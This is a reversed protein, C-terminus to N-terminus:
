TDRFRRHYQQAKRVTGRGHTDRMTAGAIILHNRVTGATYGFKDGVRELSAAQEYMAPMLRIESSSQSHNRLVVGRERLLRSLLEHGIGVQRAVVKLSEGAAYATEARQLLNEPDAAGTSTPAESSTVHATERPDVPTIAGDSDCIPRTEFLKRSPGCIM